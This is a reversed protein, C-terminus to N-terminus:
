KGGKLIDRIADSLDEGDQAMVSIKEIADLDKEAKKYLKDFQRKYYEVDLDEIDGSFMFNIREEPVACLANYFSVLEKIPTFHSDIWEFAEGIDCGEYWIDDDEDWHMHVFNKMADILVNHIADIFEKAIDNEPNRVM